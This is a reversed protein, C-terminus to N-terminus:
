VLPNKSPEIDFDKLALDTFFKIKQFNRSVTLGIALFYGTEGEIM